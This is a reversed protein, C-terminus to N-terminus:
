MALSQQACKILILSYFILTIKKTYLDDSFDNSLSNLGRDKLPTPIPTIDSVLLYIGM